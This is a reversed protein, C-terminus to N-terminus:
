VAESKTNDNSVTSLDAARERPPRANPDGATIHSDEAARRIGQLMGNFVIHHLPVVAYWYALGFLGRPKFRATQVLDCSRADPSPEIEFSLM